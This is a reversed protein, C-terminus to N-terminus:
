RSSVASSASPRTSRPSRRPSGGRAPAAPGRRGRAPRTVVQALGARASSARARSSSGRSRAGRPARRRRSASGRRPSPCGGRPCSARPRCASARARWTSRCPAAPPERRRRVQLREQRRRQGGQRRARDGVRLRQPALQQPHALAAVGGPDLLELRAEHGHRHRDVGAVSLHDRREPDAPGPDAEVGLPERRDRLRQRGVRRADGLPQSRRRGGGGDVEVFLPVVIVRWFITIRPPPM